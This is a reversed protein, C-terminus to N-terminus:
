PVFSRTASGGADRYATYAEHAAELDGTELYVDVLAIQVDLRMPAMNLAEQLEAQAREYEAWRLDRTGIQYLIESIYYRANWDMPDIALSERFAKDPRSGFEAGYFEVLASLDHVHAAHRREIAALTAPPLETENALLGVPSHMHPALALLSESVHNEYVLKPALFEAWPKDDTMLPADATFADLAEEGMMFAALLEYADPLYVQSLGNRLPENTALRNEIAEFDILLPQNSGILFLDANIFWATYHPFVDTFTKTMSRVIELNLSHLPVWQSVLGRDALRALCLEYYERTYFAAVGALALPMPEFTILDYKEKSTLLYNRGDDIVPHLKSKNLVDFNDASFLPVAELVASSIEVATISDLPSLALTGATVGSGFCMFLAQKPDRDFMFPLMGQFRNMKVGKDISATAQVGNIWLYRGLGGSDEIPATVVVTGEVGEDHHILAHDRPIFPQSLALSIDNPLFPLPLVTFVVLAVTAVIKKTKPASLIAPLLLFLGSLALLSALLYTGHQVGLLPLILFGGVLAGVVGGFTNAGYLRGITRGLRTSVQPYARVALPFTMGLLFTPPFLVFFSLLFKYRVFDAWARGQHMQYEALQEPLFRFIILTVVCAVGALWQVIGLYTRPDKSRDVFRAVAASGLAIGCLMTTLMTTFAYTTGLFVIALLRTWLVELALTCFGSLTFALLIPIANSSPTLSEESTPEDETPAMPLERRSLILALVGIAANLAAAVITARTYGLAPLLVFGSLACGTVAGFTNVSYLTAIRMGRLAHDRTVHRALLPLTAGMLTVPVVLFATALIARVFISLARSEGAVQLLPVIAREGMGAFLIFLVAWAAIALEFYAYVRLPNRSRDALRGGWLSGIGLGLFFIALVMSVAYSAAGFLLVFKRTWVVQYILGCSGSVWFMFLTSLLIASFRSPKSQSNSM